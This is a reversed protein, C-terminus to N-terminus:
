FFSDFMEDIKRASAEREKLITATSKARNVGMNRSIKNGAECSFIHGKLMLCNRVVLRDVNRLMVPECRVNTVRVDFDEIITGDIEFRLVRQKKYSDLQEPCKRKIYETGHCVYITNDITIKDGPCHFHEITGDVEVVNGVEAKIVDGYVVACNNFSARTVLDECEIRVGNTAKYEIVVDQKGRFGLTISISQKDRGSNTILVSSIGSYTKDAVTLKSM